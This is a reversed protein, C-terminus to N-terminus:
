TLMGCKKHEEFRYHKLLSDTSVWINGVFVCGRTVDYGSIREFVTEIMFCVKKGQISSLEEQGTYERYKSVYEKCKKVIHNSGYYDKGKRTWAAGNGDCFVYWPYVKLVKRELPGVIRGSRLLYKRRANLKM